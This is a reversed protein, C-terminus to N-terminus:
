AVYVTETVPEVAPRVMNADDTLLSTPVAGAALAEEFFAEAEEPSDAKIHLCELKHRYVVYIVVM